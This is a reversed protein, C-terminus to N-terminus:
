SLLMIFWPRCPTWIDWALVVFAALAAAVEYVLVPVCTAPEVALAVLLQCTPGIVCCDMLLECFVVCSCFVLLEPGVAADWIPPMALAAPLKKPASYYAVKRHNLPRCRVVLNQHELQGVLPYIGLKAELHTLNNWVLAEAFPGWSRHTGPHWYHGM